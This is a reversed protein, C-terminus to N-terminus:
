ALFDVHVESAWRGFVESAWRGFVESAWRGFVESAWRGFVESAWRGFVESAWRGFVESAWRGFVESAWRGFVESAWRGFVESAWRGFVESAWRGFVESAWRGFVESAWRRIKALLLVTCVAALDCVELIGHDSLVAGAILVRPVLSRIWLHATLQYSLAFFWVPYKPTELRTPLFQSVTFSPTRAWQPVQPLNRAVVLITIKFVKQQFKGATYSNVNVCNFFKTSSRM